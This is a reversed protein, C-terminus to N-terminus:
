PPSVARRSVVGTTALSKCLIAAVIADLDGLIGLAGPQSILLSVEADIMAPTVETEAGAQGTEETLKAGTKDFM